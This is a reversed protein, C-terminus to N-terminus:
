RRGEVWRSRFMFGVEVGSSFLVYIVIILRFRMKDVIISELVDTLYSVSFLDM